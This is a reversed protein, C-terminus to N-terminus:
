QSTSKHRGRNGTAYESDPSWEEPQFDPNLFHATNYHSNRFISTQFPLSHPQGSGFGPELEYMSPRFPGGREVIAPGRDISLSPQPPAPHMPINVPPQLQIHNSPPNHYSIHSARVPTIYEQHSSAVPAAPTPTPAYASVPTIQPQPVPNPDCDYSLSPWRQGIGSPYLGPIMTMIDPMNSSMPVFEDTYGALNVQLPAQTPVPQQQQLMPSAVDEVKYLIDYHGPRYLLRMTTISQLPQGNPATPEFRHTDIEDGQGQSRDLYLVELAFGIPKVVAEALANIGVHDIECQAAEINLSCYTKVDYDLFPAYDNPHSQIWASALLKFYTIISMAVSPDNFADLLVADASGDLARLSDALRQLLEFAEDAFDNYVDEAFGAHNLLNHMSRLRVHEDELRTVDAARLLAEFYTFAIARWGCHGDGRCTRFFAYKDPLSATKVRYAPDADRYEHALASTSQREGVLPGTTEPQYDQSLKQLQALEEDSAMYAPGSMRVQTATRAHHGTHQQSYGAPLEPPRSTPLPRYSVGPHHHHVVHEFAPPPYAHFGAALVSPRSMM